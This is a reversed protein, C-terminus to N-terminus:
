SESVELLYQTCRPISHLPPISPTTRPSSPLILTIYYVPPSLVPTPPLVPPHCHPPVSRPATGPHPPATAPCGRLLRPRDYRPAAAGPPPRSHPPPASRALLPRPGKHGRPRGGGGSVEATAAGPPPPIRAPPPVPPAPSTRPAGAARPQEAEASRPQIRRRRRRRRRRRGRGAAGWRGGGRGAAGPRERPASGSRPRPPPRRYLSRAPTPHSVFPDTSSPSPPPRCRAPATGGHQKIDGVTRRMRGGRPAGCGWLATRGGPSRLPDSAAALGWRWGWAPVGDWGWLGRPDAARGGRLGWREAWPGGAAGSGGTPDSASGSGRM